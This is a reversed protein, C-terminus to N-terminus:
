VLGPLPGQSLSTAGYVNDSLGMAQLISVLLQNHPEGNYRLYRGTPIRGGASGALVFPVDDCVHLRSDGMEKAWVVLTNDLLTGGLPDPTAALQEVLYRFQEAFFREAIRFRDVGVLDSDAAHSLTHHGDPIGLFSLVQPAVTHSFQLTAVRTMDCAMASVALDIQAQGVDGFNAHDQINNSVAPPLPSSCDGGVSLLSTEMQDLAALHADLKTKEALALRGYMTDIEGRILDLTATRRSRLRLQETADSTLEGFLREYVGHPNDDPTVYVGGPGYSIRTQMSAGWPSTQVGLELSPFRTGAQLQAAVYQDISAGGGPDSAGGSGTLMAGMGPEHNTALHFDLGDILVLHDRIPELPELISGAPFAFSTGSGTPRRQHHITGNPSFFVILRSAVGSTNASAEPTLGRCFSSLALAASTNRLFDRRSLSPSRM